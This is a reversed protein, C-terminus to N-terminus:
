KNRGFLTEKWFAAQQKVQVPATSGYSVMANVANKAGLIDFVSEDIEACFEKMEDLPIEFLPIDREMALRVMRGVIGHATRQPIQKRILYEMLSTADLWGRDLREAIVERKLVTQEV